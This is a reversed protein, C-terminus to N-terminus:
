VEEDIFSDDVYKVLENEDNRTITVEKYSTAKGWEGAFPATTFDTLYVNEGLQYLELDTNQQNFLFLKPINSVSKYNRANMMFEQLMMQKETLSSEAGKISSVIFPLIVALMFTKPLPYDTGGGIEDDGTDFNFQTDTNFAGEPAFDQELGSTTYNDVNVFPYRTVPPILNYNAIAKNFWRAIEQFSFTDDADQNVYITLDYINM